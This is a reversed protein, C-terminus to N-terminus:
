DRQEAVMVPVQGEEVTWLLTGIIGCAVLQAVGSLAIGLPATMFFAAAIALRRLNPGIGLVRRYAIDGGIYLAMGAALNWASVTPMPGFPDKVGRELGAAAVVIGAIMAMHAYGFGMLAVRARREPAKTEMASEAKQDDEDFYSAWVCVGLYICLAVYTLLPLGLPFERAAQGVGVVSEGLAVIILLGHREVFHSASLTFGGERRRLTSVIPLAVSAIWLPWKFPSPAFGAGLTLLAMGLNYPVIDLIAESSSNPAERFLGAHILVVITLGAGYIIGGSGFVTPIALSMGMFATMAGVLLWCDRNTEVRINSTLWAFGEYMWMLTFFVLAAQAYDAPGHPHAVVGTLQTVAFVFVLDFFLEITSVRQIAPAETPEVNASMSGRNKGVNLAPLPPGCKYPRGFLDVFVLFQVIGLGTQSSADM